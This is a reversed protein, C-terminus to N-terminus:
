AARYRVFFAARQAGRGALITTLAITVPDGVLGFASVVAYFLVSGSAGLFGWLWAEAGLTQVMENNLAAAWEPNRSIQRWLRLQLAGCVALSVLAAILLGLVVSEFPGQSPGYEGLLFRALTLAISLAYLALQVVIQRLHRRDFQEIEVIMNSM